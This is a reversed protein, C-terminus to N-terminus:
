RSFLFLCRDECLNVRKPNTKLCELFCTDYSQSLDTVIIQNAGFGLEYDVMTKM